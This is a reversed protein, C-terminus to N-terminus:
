MHKIKNLLVVLQQDIRDLQRRGVGGIRRYQGRVRHYTVLHHRSQGDCRSIGIHICQQHTSGTLPPMHGPRHRRDRRRGGIQNMGTQFAQGSGTRLM